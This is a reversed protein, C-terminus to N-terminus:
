PAAIGAARAVLRFRSGGYEPAAVEPETDAIECGTVCTRALEQVKAFSVRNFDDTAYRENVAVLLRRGLRAAAPSLAAVAERLM